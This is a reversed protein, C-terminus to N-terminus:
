KMTIYRDYADQRIETARELGIAYVTEVYTDWDADLDLEGIVFQTRAIKRYSDLEATIQADEQAEEETFTLNPLPGEAPVYPKLNETCSRYLRYEIYWPDTTPDFASGDMFRLDIQPGMWMWGKNQSAMSPLSNLQNVYAPLGDIGMESEEGWRWDVNEEGLYCVANAQQSCLFDGLRFAIEPNECYKTIIFNNGGSSPPYYEAYRVGEPGAVPWMIDFQKTQEGDNDSFRIPIDSAIMGVKVIDGMINQRMQEEKQSFIQQDILGEDWLKKLFRLAECYEETTIIPTIKGDTVNYTGDGYYIFSNVFYAFLNEIYSEDAGTIGIEDKIGNGNPDKDRFAILTEYLEDLTNPRELGLNKLWSDNMWLGKNFLCHTIEVYNSLAYINGDPSMM